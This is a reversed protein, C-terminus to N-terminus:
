SRPCVVCAHAAAAAAAAAPPQVRCIKPKPSCRNLAGRPPPIAPLANPTLEHKQSFTVGSETTVHSVNPCMDPHCERADVMSHHCLSPGFRDSGRVSPFATLRFATAHHLPAARRNAAARLRHAHARSHLRLRPPALPFAPPLTHIRAKQSM